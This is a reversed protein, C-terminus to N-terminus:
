LLGYKSLYPSVDTAQHLDRRNLPQKHTVSLVQPLLLCRTSMYFIFFLHLTVKRVARMPALFMLTMQKAM